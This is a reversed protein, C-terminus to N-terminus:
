PRYFAVSMSSTTPLGVFTAVTSGQAHLAHIEVYDGVGLQVFIPGVTVSTGFGDGTPEVRTPTGNVRTGNVAVAGARAPTAGTAFYVLGSVVYYGAWGTPCVWRSNNTSTSHGNHTDISEADFALATWTNNLINQPNAQHVQGIPRLLTADMAVIKTEIALALASFQNPGHPSDTTSPYPFAYVPTTAM